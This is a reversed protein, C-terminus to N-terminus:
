LIGYCQGIEVLDDRIWYGVQCTCLTFRKIEPLHDCLSLNHLRRCQETFTCRDLLKNPGSLCNYSAKNDRLNLM